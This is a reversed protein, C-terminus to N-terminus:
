SELDVLIDYLEAASEHFVKEKEAYTSAFPKDNRLIDRLFYPLSGTAHSYLISIEFTRGDMITELMEVSRKDRSYKDQLAKEYFAPMVSQKSEFALAESIAGIMEVNEVNTPVCLVSYNDLCSSLYKTQKEDYKPFPIIGYDVEMERLENFLAVLRVPMVLAKNNMFMTYKDDYLQGDKNHYIRYTGIPNKIVKEVKEYIGIARETNLMIEFGDATKKLLQQDCTPYYCDLSTDMDTIFGYVDEGDATGNGNVDTYMDKTLDYLYDLTWRGEEVVDYLNETGLDQVLQQNFLYAYTLQMSTVCLDSVASYLKDNVTFATNIDQVWWPKTLDVYPIGEWNQFLGELILDGAYYVFVGAIDFAHDDAIMSQRIYNMNEKHTPNETVIQNIEVNFRDEIKKNRNFVADNTIEGTLSEVDMEYQYYDAVSFTMTEGDFDMEPLGDTLTTEEEAITESTTDANQETEQPAKSCAALSAVMGILLLLSTTKRIRCM